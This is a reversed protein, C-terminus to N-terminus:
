MLRGGSMSVRGAYLTQSAGTAQYTFLEVYDSSGNLDFVGTVVITCGTTSPAVQTATKVASGNLYLAAQMVAAATSSDYGVYATICYRGAVQPNFRYNTVADFASATDLNESALQVKTWTDHSITQASGRYADFAPASAVNGVPLSGTVAAAQSLNLAGFALATGSRRLVQHDTGAAIDAVDATANGTVGVVSLAVSQRFQANGIGNAKIDVQFSNNAGNDTTQFRTGNFNLTREASLNSDTALVLYQSSSPAVPEWAGSAKLFKHAAADGAAPAPVAGKVGGSGSDGVFANVDVTFPGGAGGDGTAFSNGNFNLTREQTLTADTALVLYQAGTPAGVPAGGDTLQGNSSWTAVNGATITGSQMVAYQSAASGPIRFRPLGSESWFNFSNTPASSPASTVNLFTLFGADEINLRQRVNVDASPVTWFELRAPKSTNTHTDTVVHRISTSPQNFSQSASWGIGEDKRIIDNTQLVAPAASTGRAARGSYLAYNGTGYSLSQHNGIGSQGPAPSVEFSTNGMRQFFFSETQEDYWFQGANSKGTTPNTLADKMLFIGQGPFSNDTTLWEGLAFNGNEVSYIPTRTIAGHLVAEYRHTVSHDTATWDRAAFVDLEAAPHPGGIGNTADYSGYAYAGLEDGAKAPLPAGPHGRMNYCHFESLNDQAAVHNNYALLSVGTSGSGGSAPTLLLTNGGPRMIYTYRGSSPLGQGNQPVTGFGFWRSGGFSLQPVSGYGVLPDFFIGSTPDSAPAIAPASVTGNIAFFRTDASFAVSSSGPTITGTTTVRYTKTQNATGATIYVQTGTVVDGVDRFDVARSWAGASVVYVGNESATTQQCVLVRDDAVVSVGDVTQLGSLTINATTAVRCPIKAPQSVDRFQADFLSLPNLGDALSGFTTRM